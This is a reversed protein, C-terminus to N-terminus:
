EEHRLKSLTENILTSSTSQTYPFYVIDVGLSALESEYKDWQSHGFWDDGVFLKHANLRRM